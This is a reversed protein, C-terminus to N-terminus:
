NRYPSAGPRPMDEQPRPVPRGFGREENYRAVDERISGSRILTSNSPPRPVPRGETSVPTIGGAYQQAVHPMMRPGGRYAPMGAPLANRGPAVNMASMRRDAHAPGGGFGFGRANGRAGFPSGAFHGAGAGGHFGGHPMESRAHAFSALVILIAGTIWQKTKSSVGDVNIQRGSLGGPGMAQAAVFVQKSRRWSANNVAGIHRGSSGLWIAWASPGLLLKHTGGFRTSGFLTIGASPNYCRTVAHKERIIQAFAFAFFDAKSLAWDVVFRKLSASGTLTTLNRSRFLVELFHSTSLRNLVAVFAGM